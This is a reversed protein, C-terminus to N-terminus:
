PGVLGMGWLAFALPAGGLISDMVDLIGGMGPIWSGSDKQHSERKILSEVLDGWMGCLSVAVGFVLAGVITTQGVSGTLWYAIPFLVLLSGLVGFVVAALAGEVTKGPSLRPTMKHKGIWRGVLYAFSDSMKVTVILSLVAVIGWSNDILFRLQALFSLLGVYAAIFVLRLLRNLVDTEPQYDWMSVLFAWGLAAAWGLATWGFKGVPCEQIETPFFVPLCSPLVALLVAVLVIPPSWRRDAPGVLRRMEEGALPALVLVVALMIIGPRALSSDQGMWHDLWTMLLVTAIVVASSILRRRLV